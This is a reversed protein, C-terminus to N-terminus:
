RVRRERWCLPLLAALPLLIAHSALALSAARQSLLGLLWPLVAGGLGGGAFLVGIWAAAAPGARQQYLAVATPFQPGLGFGAMLAGAFFLAAGSGHIALVVGAMAIGLGTVMWLGARGGGSIAALGRGALIALWFASQAFGATAPALSLRRIGLSPLWGSLCNEVGVYLLLFLFTRWPFAAAQLGSERPVAKRSPTSRWVLVSALAALALLAALGDMVWSLPWSALAKATLAPGAVAGAGWFMNLLNLARVADGRGWQAAALNVSAINFGLGLGYVGVGAQAAALGPISFFAAGAAMLLYSFGVVRGAPWRGATWRYASSAATAALFQIAFFQGARGDDLAYLRALTPLLVGLLVTM